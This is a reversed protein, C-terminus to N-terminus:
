KKETRRKGEDSLAMSQRRTFSRIFEVRRFRLASWDEDIAVQRVPEFGATGFAEWGSDRNFDCTYKKSSTKPYACWIIADGETKRLAIKAITDLEQQLTAFALMFEIKNVQDADQIVRVDQLAALEAKLSDPANLVLIQKQEKLNLKKFLASM